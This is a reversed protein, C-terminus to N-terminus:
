TSKGILSILRRYDKESYDIQVQGERVTTAPVQKGHPDSVTGLWSVLVHSAGSHEPDGKRLAKITRPYAEEFVNQDNAEARDAKTLVIIFTVDRAKGLRTKAANDAVTALFADRQERPWDGEHREDSVDALLVIADSELSDRLRESLGYRDVSGGPSGELIEKLQGSGKMVLIDKETLPVDELIVARFEHSRFFSIFRKKRFGLTLSSGSVKAKSTSSPWSGSMIELRLDGFAKAEVPGTNFIVEQVGDNEATTMRILTEYLLGLFVTRGCHPTGIISVNM